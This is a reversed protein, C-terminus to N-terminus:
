KSANASDKTKMYDTLWQQYLKAYEMHLKYNNSFNSFGTLNPQAVFYLYDTSPANLTADITNVSPTCIPGPPLGSYMYTNYLSNVQTHKERVRKISFDKLAFIVTPDAALKMGTELRNLYVSAIKGKDEEKTTESEVISALIYAQNPTLSLAAAKRKREPTWFKEKEADLKKLIRSFSSNWNFTYTNPIIATMLSNSDLGLRSLSDNNNLYNMVMSSDPEFNRGILAALNEKTRLKNIVLNVPSQRGARLMRVLNLLSMGNKIEYRGAKVADKYHLMGALKDFFFTGPIIKQDVLNQEVTEFSSGTNIYFYKDKPPTVTPGIVKWAIFGIIALVPLIIIWKKKM